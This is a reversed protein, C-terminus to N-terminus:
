TPNLASSTIHRSCPKNKERPSPPFYNQKAQASQFTLEVQGHPALHIPPQKKTDVSCSSPPDACYMHQCITGDATGVISLPMYGQRNVHSLLDPESFPRLCSLPHFFVLVRCFLSLATTTLARFGRSVGLNGRYTSVSTSRCHNCTAYWTFNVM